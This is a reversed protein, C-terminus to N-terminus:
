EPEDQTFCFFPFSKPREGKETELRKGNQEKQTKSLYREPIALLNM